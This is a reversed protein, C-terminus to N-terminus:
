GELIEPLCLMKNPDAARYVKRSIQKRRDSTSQNIDGDKEIRELLTETGM